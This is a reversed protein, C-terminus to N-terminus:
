QLRFSDRLVCVMNRCVAALSRAQCYTDSSGEEERRLGVRLWEMAHRQKDEVQLGWAQEQRYIRHDFFLACGGGSLHEGSVTVTKENTKAHADFRQLNLGDTWKKKHLNLLM